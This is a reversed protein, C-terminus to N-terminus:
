PMAERKLREQTVAWKLWDRKMFEAVTRLSGRMTYWQAERRPLRGDSIATHCGPCGAAGIDMSKIGTGKGLSQMDNHVLISPGTPCNVGEVNLTCPIARVALRYHEDRYTM